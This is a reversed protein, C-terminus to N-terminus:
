TVARLVPEKTRALQEILSAAQEVGSKSQLRRAISEMRQERERNGLLEDLADYFEGDSFGYPHLRIGFGTEHMRQANDHQDWFLSFNLMPKGFHISETVTNNGSHTVVADALPLISVQPLFEEGYINDPLEIEGFQPGMSMIVRYDSNGLLSVLRRMIEPEASGLSGLSVYILKRDDQLSPPLQFPPDTTRVSSEVRHFTPALPQSRQYDAEEPYIYINLHASEYMFQGEPLPPCGNEQVFQNFDRWLPENHEWYKRQWAEWDSDDSTPLGSLAPPLAPDPIELPNCSTIRVWPCGAAMVAPFAVVNDEAIVDPQLERFIEQLRPEVYRAGNLLEERIPTILTDIQDYTSERFHPATERIFDMWAQGPEEPQDSPPALRMLREEFGRAELAGKFSEEIVFVVRCGRQKLVNGIGICNNTPGHANEPFFVITPSATSM